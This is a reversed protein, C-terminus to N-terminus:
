DNFIIAKFKGDDSVFNWSEIEGELKNISENALLFLKKVGTRVSEILFGIDCADDYVRGMFSGAFNSAESIFTKDITDYSFMKTSHVPISLKSM